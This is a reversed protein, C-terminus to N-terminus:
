VRVVENVDRSTKDRCAAAGSLRSDAEFDGNLSMQRQVVSNLHLTGLSIVCDCVANVIWPPGLYGVIAGKFVTKFM